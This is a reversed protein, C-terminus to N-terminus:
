AKEGWFSHVRIGAGKLINRVTREYQCEYSIAYACGRKGNASNGQVVECFVANKALLSRAQMANTVSGIEAFCRGKKFDHRM